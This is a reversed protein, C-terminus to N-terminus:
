NRKKSYKNSYVNPPLNGKKEVDKEQITITKFSGCSFSFGLVLVLPLLFTRM